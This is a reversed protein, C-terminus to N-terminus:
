ITESQKLTTISHRTGPFGTEFQKLNNWTTGFQYNNLLTQHRIGSVQHTPPPNSVTAM